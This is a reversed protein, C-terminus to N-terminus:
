ESQSTNDNLKQLLRLSEANKNEYIVAQRRLEEIELCLDNNVRKLQIIEQELNHQIHM